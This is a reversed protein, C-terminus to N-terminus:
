KPGSFACLQPEASYPAPALDLCAEDNCAGAMQNLWEQDDSEIVVDISRTNNPM